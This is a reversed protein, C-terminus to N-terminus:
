WVEISDSTFIQELVAAYDPDPVTLDVVEVRVEPQGSQHTRVAAALADDPRTLIHLVVRM